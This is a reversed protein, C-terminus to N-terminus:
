KELHRMALPVEKQLGDIINECEQQRSHSKITVLRSLVSGEKCAKYLRAEANSFIKM